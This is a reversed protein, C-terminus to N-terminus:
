RFANLLAVLLIVYVLVLVFYTIVGILAGKGASRAKLPTQDKWVLFLILGVLPFFFGLTAFGGNPADGIGPISAGGANAVPMMQQSGDPMTVMVYVPVAPAAPAPASQRRVPAKEVALGFCIVAYALPVLSAGFTPLWGNLRNPLEVLSVIMVAVCMGFMLWKIVQKTAARGGAYFGVLVLPIILLLIFGMITTIGSVASFAIVLPMVCVAVVAIVRGSRNNLAWGVFVLVAIILDTITSYLIGFRILALVAAVVFLAAAVLMAWSRQPMTLRFETVVPNMPIAQASAPAVPIAPAVPMAPAVRMAPASPTQVPPPPSETESDKARRAAVAAVVAPDNQKGLWDLLGPYAAPHQAAQVRLAPFDRAIEFVQSATAGADGMVLRAQAEDM